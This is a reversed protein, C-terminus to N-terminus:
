ERAATGLDRSRGEAIARPCVPCQRHPGVAAAHYIRRMANIIRRITTPPQSFQQALAEVSDGRRHQGYIQSRAQTQLPRHRDPLILYDTHM